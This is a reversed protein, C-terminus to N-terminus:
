TGSSAPIPHGTLQAFDALLADAYAAFDYRRATMTAAAGLQSRLEASRLLRALSAALRAAADPARHDFVLGNEGHRIFDRFCALDSTVPVAGAAMAEVVAVGFTEGQEAISPYCFIDIQQYTAALARDHFRPDLVTFAEAPLIRALDHMLKARYESGAGGRAVDSPGCLLLRWRPLDPERRLHSLAAVLLALGKEEHLRGIFGVTIVAHSLPAHSGTRTHMLDFDIPYGRVVSIARLSENEAAVRDRVHSSAALIRAIRHYHRYQGKPMRGTMLVVRGAGPRTWGLWVPLAVANVVVIDAAPLAFWVRVSWLFDLLLNAGIRRHHNHGPLRRHRIGELVEDDPWGRWRRSIMTVQHGRRAFVRALQHWSKETSGGSVPPVPLFFGCVITIRM